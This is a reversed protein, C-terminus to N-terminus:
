ARVEIDGQEREPQDTELLKMKHRPRLESWTFPSATLAGFGILMPPLTWFIYGVLSFSAAESEPVGFLTLGLVCFFQWTGVEGPAGPLFTGVTILAFLGAAQLYSLDIHYAALLLWLVGARLGVIGIAAFVAVLLGRLTVRVASTRMNLVVSKFWRGARGSPLSSDIRARLGKRRLYIIFGGVLAVVILSELGGIAIRLSVPLALGGVTVWVLLILAMADSVREVIQTSFVSAISTRARSSVMVGRVLEGSSLPLIGSYITGVYIAQLVFRYGVAVLRLLYKWRVAELLRPSVDLVVAVLVLWWTTEELDAKLQPLHLNWIVYALGAISIGYALWSLWHKRVYRNLTSPARQMDSM